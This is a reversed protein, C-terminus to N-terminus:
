SSRRSPRPSSRLGRELALGAVLRRRRLVALRLRGVLAGADGTMSAPLATAGEGSTAPTALAAAADLMRSSGAALSRGPASSGSPRSRRRRRHGAPPPRVAVPCSRRRADSVGARAAATRVSSALRGGELAELRDVPRQRRDLEELRACRGRRGFAAISWSDFVRRISSFSSLKAIGALTTATLEPGTTVWYSTLGSCWTLTERISARASSRAIARDAREIRISAGIGPLSTTPMSIGFATLSTTPKRGSTSSVCCARPSWGASTRGRAAVDRALGIATSRALIGWRSIAPAVPEPLLTQTLASM